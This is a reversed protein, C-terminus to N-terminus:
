GRVCWERLIAALLERIAIVRALSVLRATASERPWRYSRPRLRPLAIFANPFHLQASAIQM